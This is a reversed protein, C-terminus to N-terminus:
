DVLYLWDKEGGEGKFKDLFIEVLDARFFRSGRYKIANSEIAKCCKFNM